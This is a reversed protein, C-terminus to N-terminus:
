TARSAPFRFQRISRATADENAQLLDCGCSDLAVSTVVAVGAVAPRADIGSEVHVASGVHDREGAGAAVAVRGAVVGGRREARAALDGGGSSEDAGV